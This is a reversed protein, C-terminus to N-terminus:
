MYKQTVQESQRDIKRIEKREDRQIEGQIEKYNNSAREIYDGERQLMEVKQKNKKSPM